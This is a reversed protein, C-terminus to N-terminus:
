QADRAALFADFQAQKEAIVKELGADKLAQNFIPLYEDLDLAGCEIARRYQDMVNKVAAYEGAVPSMDFMFGIANSRPATDNFEKLAPWIEGDNEWNYTIYQNGWMWANNPFYTSNSSDVGDAFTILQDTVKKYHKGEIGFDILNLIDSDTYFLNLMEMAKQPNQSNAAISMGMVSLVGTNCLPDSLLVCDMDYGWGRSNQGIAGPKYRTSVAWITGAKILTTASDTNSAYDAPIYGAEYWERMTKCYQYYTDTEFLNVIKTGGETPKELVGIYDCLVDFDNEIMHYLMCFSGNGTVIHGVDPENDYVTKLVGTVDDLTKVNSLDINYKEILDHRFMICSQSAWDRCAPLCYVQGDMTVSHLVDDPLVEKIGQGYQDLLDNMPLLQGNTMQAAVNWNYGTAVLDVKEHGSLMLNLQQQYSSSNIYEISLTANIKERTIENVKALVEGMDDVCNSGYILLKVEYPEEAIASFTLLSCLLMITLLASLMKKM